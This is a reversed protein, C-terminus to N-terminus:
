VPGSGGKIAGTGLCMYQCRTWYVTIAKRSIFWIHGFHGGTLFTQTANKNHQKAVSWTSQLSSLSKNGQWPFNSFPKLQLEVMCVIFLIVSFLLSFFSHFCTNVQGLASVMPSLHGMCVSTRQQLVRELMEWFPSGLKLQDATQPTYKEVILQLLLIEDKLLVSDNECKKLLQELVPLLKMMM